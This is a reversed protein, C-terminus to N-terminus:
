VQNENNLYVVPSVGRMQLREKLFVLGYPQLQIQRYAIDLLCHIKSIPTETLSVAGFYKLRDTDPMGSHAIGFRADSIETGKSHLHRQRIISELAQHATLGNPIDRTLHVLFPSIDQRFLLIDKINRM